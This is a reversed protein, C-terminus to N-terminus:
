LTQVAVVPKLGALESDQQLAEYEERTWAKIITDFEDEEYLAATRSPSPMTSRQNGKWLM